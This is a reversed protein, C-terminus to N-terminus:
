YLKCCSFMALLVCSPVALFAGEAHHASEIGKKDKTM